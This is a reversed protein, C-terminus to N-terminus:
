AVGASERKKAELLSKAEGALWFSGTVCILDDRGVARAACNIAEKVTPEVQGMKGTLSTFRQLLEDPDAARPNNQSKTFIVKDAGRGIEELMSDVNKDGACGFIVVMSDCRVQAGIAKVLGAVSEGTHAGDVLVRPEDWVIEMRGNRPTEALGSAVEREPLQFGLETLKALIGLVLGCNDAQHEGPLPVPLHEYAATKTSVCVRMHPGMAHMSEFRSTFSVDKGLVMLPAGVSEAVESIVEMAEASQPVTVAPVGSKLIGAKERAIQEITDGLVATHELHLGSLGCVMPTIVNTADLRGGLGVEVVGVDVARDAFFLLALATIAEFYTPEGLKPNLTGSADRVRSLARIFAPEEIADGNLRVRERPTVLHPSTTLGVAYGSSRLCSALMECVSGKGKSGAVHILRVEDQPNELASMLARMRDLKVGDRPWRTPRIREFNVRADLWNM